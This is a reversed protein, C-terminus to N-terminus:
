SCLSRPATGSFLVWVVSGDRSCGEAAVFLLVRVCCSPCEIVCVCGDNQTSLRVQVTPQGNNQLQFGKYNTGDYMVRSVFRTKRGELLEQYVRYEGEEDFRAERRAKSWSGGKSPKALRSAAEGQQPPVRGEREVLASIEGGKEVHPTIEAGSGSASATVMRLRSLLGSPKGPTGYVGPRLRSRASPRPAAHWCRVRARTCCSLVMAACQHPRVIHPCSSSALALALGAAGRLACSGSSVFSLM